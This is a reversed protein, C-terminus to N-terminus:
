PQRETTPAEAYERIGRLSMMGWTALAAFAAVGLWVISSGASRPLLGVESAGLLLWPLGEAFALSIAAKDETDKM